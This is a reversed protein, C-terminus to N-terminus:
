QRSDMKLANARATAIATAGERLTFTTGLLLPTSYRLKKMRLRCPSSDLLHELTFRIDRSEALIASSKM